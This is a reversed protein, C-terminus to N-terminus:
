PFRPWSTSGEHFTVMGTPTPSGGTVTATFSVSQGIASPNPSSTLATTTAFAHVKQLLVANGGPFNADGNYTATILHNGLFGNEAALNSTTVSAQGNADLPVDAALTTTIPTLDRYTFDVFTVTGSPTPGPSGPNSVTATFTVPNGTVFTRVDTASTALTVNVGALPGLAFLTGGNLTLVTGDPGILVPVYPEGIGATLTVAQAFPIRRSMGVISEATKM